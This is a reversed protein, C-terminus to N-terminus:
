SWVLVEVVAPGWMSPVDNISNNEVIAEELNIFGGLTTNLRSLADNVADTQNSFVNGFGVYSPMNFTYEFSSEALFVNGTSGYDMTRVFNTVTPATGYATSPLFIRTPVQRSGPSRYITTAPPNTTGAWLEIDYSARQAINLYVEKVSSIGAPFSFNATKQLLANGGWLQTRTIQVIGYNNEPPISYNVEVFSSNQPNANLPNSLIAKPTNTGWYDDGYNNFYVSLTNTGPILSASLNAMNYVITPNAPPAVVSHLPTAGNLFMIYDYDRRRANNGNWDTFQDNGGYNTINQAVIRIYVNWNFSNPPLDFSLTSWVGNVQSGGSTTRARVQDFYYRKSVEQNQAFQYLVTENQQYQVEIRFGPHTHANYNNDNFRTVELTNNGPIMCGLVSRTAFDTESNGFQWTFNTRTFSCNNIRFAMDAANTDTHPALYLTANTININVPLQMIKVLELWGSDDWGSGQPLVFFTQSTSKRINKARANSVFGKIPKAKELGSVLKSSKAIFTPAPSTRQYITDNNISIAFGVSVPVLAETINFAFDRSLNYNGNAWFEGIQELLTNNTNVITGNAILAAVYTQNSLDNVTLLTLSNLVDEAYYNLNVVSPSQTYETSILYLGFLLLLAGIIADITFFLGKKM